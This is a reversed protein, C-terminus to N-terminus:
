SAPAGGMTHLLDEHQKRLRDYKEDLAAYEEHWFTRLEANEQQLEKNEKQLSAYKRELDAYEHDSTKREAEFRACSPCVLLTETAAWGAPGVYRADTPPPPEGCRHQSEAYTGVKSNGQLLSLRDLEIRCHRKCDDCLSQCDSFKDIRDTCRAVERSSFRLAFDSGCNIPKDGKGM